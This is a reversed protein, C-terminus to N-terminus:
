PAKPKPHLAAALVCGMGTVFALLTGLVLLSLFTNIEPRFFPRQALEAQWVSEFTFILSFCALGCFVAMCLWRGLSLCGARSLAVPVTIPLSIVLLTL